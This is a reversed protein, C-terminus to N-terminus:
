HDLSLFIKSSSLTCHSIVQQFIPSGDELALYQLNLSLSFYQSPFNQFTLLFSPSISQSNTVRYATSIGIFSYRRVKQM